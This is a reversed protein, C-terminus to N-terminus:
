ITTQSYTQSYEVLNSQFMNYLSDELSQTDFVIYLGERQGLSMAFVLRRRKSDIMWIM